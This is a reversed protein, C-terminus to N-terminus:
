CCHTASRYEINTTTPCPCNLVAELVVLLAIKQSIDSRASLFCESLDIKKSLLYLLAFEEFNLATLTFGERDTQLLKNLVDVKEDKCVMWQVDKGIVADKQWAKETDCSTSSQFQPSIFYSGVIHLESGPINAGFILPSPDNLLDQELSNFERKNSKLYSLFESLWLSNPATLM